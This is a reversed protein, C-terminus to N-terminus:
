RATLSSRAADGACLTLVLGAVGFALGLTPCLVLLAAAEFSFQEPWAAYSLAYTAAGLVGHALGASLSVQKLESRELGQRQGRLLLALYGGVLAGAAPAWLSPAGFALWSAGLAALECVLQTLLM